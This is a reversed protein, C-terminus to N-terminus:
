ISIPFSMFVSHNFLCPLHPDVKIFSSDNPQPRYDLPLPSPLPRSKPPPQPLTATSAVSPAPSAPTPFLPTDRSRRHAPGDVRVQARSDPSGREAQSCGESSALGAETCGSPKHPHPPGEPSCLGPPCPLCIHQHDFRRTVYGISKVASQGGDGLAEVQSTGKGSDLSRPM